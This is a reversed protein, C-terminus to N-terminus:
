KLLSPKLTVEFPDIKKKDLIEVGYTLAMYEYPTGNVSPKKTSNIHSMMLDCLEKTLSEFITVKPLIYRIYEYNKWLTM